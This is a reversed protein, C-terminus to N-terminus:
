YKKLAGSHLVLSKVKKEHNYYYEETGDDILVGHKEEAKELINKIDADMLLYLLEQFYSDEKLYKITKDYTLDLRGLDNTYYAKRFVFSLEYDFLPALRIENNNVMFLLNKRFRDIQSTYFDRIFLKKIDCLLDDDLNSHEFLELDRGKKLRLQGAKKYNFNKDCFNKSIVGYGNKSKVLKYHVTKLNFYESILEGILENLIKKDDMRWKVFYWQGDIQHWNNVYDKILDDDIGIGEAIKEM